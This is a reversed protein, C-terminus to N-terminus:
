GNANMAGTDLGQLAANRPADAQTRSLEPHAELHRLIDPLDFNPNSPFLESYIKQVFAFDESTDVTWRLDSLDDSQAFNEIQYQDNRRYVGLTVHEREPQDTSAKAVERLVDAKVVEVDLGDPFTPTMTNSLYDAHSAHFAAVVEDIVRPSTLPCDATLRVVVEPQYMDIALIFRELVDDLDGRVTTYGFSNLVEVLQDDSADTSTAVVIADLSQSQSIRELQQIVMPKGQLDALVKGPFHTSSMRAQVIALTKPNSM